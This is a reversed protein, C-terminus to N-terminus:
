NDEIHEKFYQRNKIRPLIKAADVKIPELRSLIDSKINAYIEDISDPNEAYKEYEKEYNFTHRNNKYEILLLSKVGAIVELGTISVPLKERLKEVFEELTLLKKKKKFFM